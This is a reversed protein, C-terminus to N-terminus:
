DTALLDVKHTAQRRSRAVALTGGVHGVAGLASLNIPSTTFAAPIKAVALQPQSSSLPLSSSSSAYPSLSSSSLSSSPSSPCLTAIAAETEDEAKAVESGGCGSM